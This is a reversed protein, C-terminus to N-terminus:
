LQEDVQGGGDDSKQEYANSGATSPEPPAIEKVAEPEPAPGGRTVGVKAPRLLRDGLVYGTELVQGVVGAPTDTDEYEFLAEHLNHDFKRGLAEIPRIGFREFAGLMQRETMEVGVMLSEVMPNTKRVQADVSDLARRLNDAVTLMERAFAAIAYKTAEEKDRVARRRTNEADALARLLKDTLEKLEAEHATEASPEDEPAEPELAVDEAEAEIAVEPQPSAADESAGEEPSPTEKPADRAESAVPREEAAEAATEEPTKKTNNSM